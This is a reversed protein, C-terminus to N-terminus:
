EEGGSNVVRERCSARGIKSARRLKARWRARLFEARGGLARGTPSVCASRPDSYTRQDVEHSAGETVEKVRPERSRTVPATRRHLDSSCVDSSWDSLCRTHR